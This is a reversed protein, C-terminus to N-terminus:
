IQSVHPDLNLQKNNHTTRHTHRAKSDTRGTNKSKATIHITRSEHM